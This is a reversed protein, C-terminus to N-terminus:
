SVKKEYDSDDKLDFRISCTFALRATINTTTAQRTPMATPEAKVKSTSCRVYLMLM